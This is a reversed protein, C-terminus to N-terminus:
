GIRAYAPGLDDLLTQPYNWKKNIESDAYSVSVPGYSESSTKRADADTTNLKNIRYWIMKSVASWQAIHLGLYVYSGDGTADASMTFIGTEPDYEKLYTDAPIKPSYLTRGLNFDEMAYDVESFFGKVDRNLTIQDSGSTIGAIVYESFQNNLIRRIDSSVLPIMATLAADYTTVALGLQAKVTALSILNLIL